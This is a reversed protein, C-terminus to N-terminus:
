RISDMSNVVSHPPWTWLIPHTLCTYDFCNQFQLWLSTHYALISDLWDRLTFPDLPSRRKICPILSREQPTRRKCGRINLDSFAVNQKRRPWRVVYCHVLVLALLCSGETGGCSKRPNWPAVWPFTVWPMLSNSHILLFGRSPLLRPINHSLARCLSQFRAPLAAPSM